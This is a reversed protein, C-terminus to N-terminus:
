KKIAETVKDVTINKDHRYIIFIRLRRNFTILSSSYDSFDHKMYSLIGQFRMGESNHEKLQQM